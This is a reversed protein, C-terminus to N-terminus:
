TGWMLYAFSMVGTAGPIGGGRTEVQFTVGGALDPFCGIASAFDFFGPNNINTTPSAVANVTGAAGPLKINKGNSAANGAAWTFSSTGVTSLITAGLQAFGSRGLSDIIEVLQPANNISDVAAASVNAGGSTAPKSEATLQAANGAAPQCIFDLDHSGSANAVAIIYERIVNSSDIFGLGGGATYTATTQEPVEVGGPFVARVTGNPNTRLYTPVLTENPVQRANELRDLRDLISALIGGAGNGLFQGRTPLPSM